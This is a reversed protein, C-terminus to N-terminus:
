ILILSLEKLSTFTLELKTLLTQCLNILDKHTEAILIERQKVIEEKKSTSRKVMVAKRKLNGIKKIYHRGERWGMVGHKNALTGVLNILRKMADFLLSTDTPYHVNSKVVFSDTKIHLDKTLRSDLMKHGNQVILVNIKELMEETILSMNDKLCQLSYYHPDIISHGLFKRLDIHNNALNCLRDYDANIAQRLLCFIFIRWLSMGSRGIKKIRIKEKLIQFIQELLEKKESIVKIGFLLRTIDDRSKYDLTIKNLSEQGLKFQTEFESIIRM